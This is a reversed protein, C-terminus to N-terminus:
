KSQRKVRRMVACAKIEKAYGTASDVAPVCDVLMSLYAAGIKEMQGQKDLEHAVLVLDPACNDFVRKIARFIMQHSELKFDEPDIIKEVTATLEGVTLLAGLVAREMADVRESNWWETDTDQGLDIWGM